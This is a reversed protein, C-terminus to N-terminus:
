INRAIERTALKLCLCVYSLSSNYKEPIYKLNKAPTLPAYGDSARYYTNIMTEQERTAVKLAVSM